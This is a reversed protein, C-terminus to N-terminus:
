LLYRKQKHHEDPYIYLVVVKAAMGTDMGKVEFVERMMKEFYLVGWEAL